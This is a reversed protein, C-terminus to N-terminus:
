KIHDEREGPFERHARLILYYATALSAILIGAGALLAGAVHEYDFVILERSIATIAILVVAGVHIEDKTAYIYMTEMIELIVVVLLFLGLIYLVDAKGEIFFNNGTLLDVVYFVLIALLALLVISVLVMTFYISWKKLFRFYDHV